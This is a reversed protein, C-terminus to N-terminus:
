PDAFYLYLFPNKKRTCHVSYLRGHYVLTCFLVLVILNSFILVLFFEEYSQVKQGKRNKKHKEYNFKKYKESESNERSYWVVRVKKYQIKPFVFTTQYEFFFESYPFYLFSLYLFCLFFLFLVTRVIYVFTCNYM